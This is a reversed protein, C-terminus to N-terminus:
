RIVLRERTIGHESAVEVIYIGAQLNRLDLTAKNTAELRQFVVLAGTASVVRVTGAIQQSLAITAQTTAPNPFLLMTIPAAGLAASGAEFVGKASPTSFTKSATWASGATVGAECLTRMQWEYTTSASLGTLWHHSLTGTKVLTTWTTTGVERWRIRFRHALAPNTWTLKAMTSTVPSEALATPQLCPGSLTTFNQGLSAQGWGNSACDAKVTWRYTTSATLGTLTFAGTQSEKYTVNWSSTGAVRWLIKYKTAGCVTDWTLMVSTDHKNMERLNDVQDCGLGLQLNAVGQCGNADLAVAQYFGSSIGTISAGQSSPWWSYTYPSTGGSAVATAGGTQDGACVPLNDITTTVSVSYQVGIQLYAQTTCGSADTVDISYHTGGDANTVTSTTANLNQWYYSYPSTGGTAVVSAVGDSTTNCTAPTNTSATAALAAAPENVTVSTTGTCGNDDSVTITYTGAQLYQAMAGGGGNSWSYYYPSTGGTGTATVQGESNGYCSVHADVIASVTPTPGAGITITDSIAQCGSADTITTFYDGPSLHQITGTGNGGSASWWYTYPSSGGMPSVTASGDHMGPCSSNTISATYTISDPGNFVLTDINTCGVADSLTVTYSGAALCCVTAGSQFNSWNYDIFGTGGTSSATVQGDTDYSCNLAQDVTFSPVPGSGDVLETSGFSKMCGLSDTVTVDYFDPGVSYITDTQAWGNSWIFLYPPVGGSATAKGTGDYWGACSTNTLTMGVVIAPPETISFTESASCGTGDTVTVSYTGAALNSATSGSAGNSWSYTFLPTGSTLNVEASGDSGGNCSANQYVDVSFVLGSCSPVALEPSENSVSKLPNNGYSTSSLLMLLMVLVATTTNTFTSMTFPIKVQNFHRTWFRFHEPQSDANCHIAPALPLRIITM